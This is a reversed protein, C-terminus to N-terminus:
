WWWGMLPLFPPRGSCRLPQATAPMLRWPSLHFPHSSHASPTCPNPCPVPSPLPVPSSCPTTLGLPAIHESYRSYSAPSPSHSLLPLTDGSFVFWVSSCRFIFLFTSYSCLSPAVRSVVPTGCRWSCARNVRTLAGPAGLVRCEVSAAEPAVDEM